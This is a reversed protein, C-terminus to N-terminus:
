STHIPPCMRCPMLQHHLTAMVRVASLARGLCWVPFSLQSHKSQGCRAWCICPPTSSIHTLTPTLTLTLCAPHPVHVVPVSTVACAPLVRLIYQWLLSSLLTQISLVLSAMWLSGGCCVCNRRRRGVRWWLRYLWWWWQWCCGVEGSALVSAVLDFLAARLGTHVHSPLLQM